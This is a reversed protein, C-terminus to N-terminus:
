ASKKHATPLMTASRNEALDDARGIWIDLFQDLWRQVPEDYILRGDLHQRRNQAGPLNMREAGKVSWKCMMALTLESHFQVAYTRDGYRFAQNPYTDGRALHVAGHPLDFGERHWQYIMPPWDMLAAGEPTAHLPYYGVEVQGEPHSTVEGGLHRVLKQAGLCIGFFPRNEKLPVALWDTERKVFEDPDNASMPGGFMVAGAHDDMSEPLHDGLPPRRIDLDFGRELLRLGLRGPTSTEQHLIILIKPKSPQQSM